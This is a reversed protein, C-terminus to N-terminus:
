RRSAFGLLYRRLRIFLEFCWILCPHSVVLPPLFLRRPLTHSRHLSSCRYHTDAHLTTVFSLLFIFASSLPFRPFQSYFFLLPRGVSRCTVTHQPLLGLWLMDKSIPTQFHLFSPASSFLFRTDLPGHPTTTWTYSSLEGLTRRDIVWWGDCGGLGSRMASRWLGYM